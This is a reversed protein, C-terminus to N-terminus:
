WLLQCICRALIEPLCCSNLLCIPAQGAHQSLYCVGWMCRAHQDSLVEDFSDEVGMEERLRAQWEADPDLQEDASTPGVDAAAADRCCVSM